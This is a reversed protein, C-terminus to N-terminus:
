NPVVYMTGHTKAALLGAKIMMMVIPWGNASRAERRATSTLRPSLIGFCVCAGNKWEDPATWWCRLMLSPFRHFKAARPPGQNTEATINQGPTPCSLSHLSLSEAGRGANPGRIGDTSPLSPPSELYGVRQGRGSGRSHKTSSCYHQTPTEARRKGELGGSESGGVM